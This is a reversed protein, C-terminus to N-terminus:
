VKREPRKVAMYFRQGALVVGMITLNIKYPLHNPTYNIVEGSFYDGSTLDDRIKQRVEPKTLEGQFMRPTKGFCEEKSYGTLTEHMSNAAVITPNEKDWTTIAVAYTRFADAFRQPGDKIGEAFDATLTVKKNGCLYKCLWNKM